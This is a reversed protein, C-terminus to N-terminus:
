IGPVIFVLLLTCIKASLFMSLLEIWIMFLALGGGPVFTFSIINAKLTGLRRRTLWQAGEKHFSDSDPFFHFCIYSFKLRIVKQMKFKNRIILQYIYNKKNGFSNWVDNLLILFFPLSNLFDKRAAKFIVIWLRGAIRVKLSSWRTPSKILIKRIYGLFNLLLTKKTRTHHSVWKGQFTKWETFTQM